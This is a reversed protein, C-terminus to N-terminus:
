TCNQETRESCERRENRYDSIRGMMNNIKLEKRINESWKQDRCTVGAASGLCQLEAAEIRKYKRNRHLSKLWTFFSWTNTSMTKCM